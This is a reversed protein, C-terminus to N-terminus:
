GNWSLVGRALVNDIAEWSEFVLERNFVIQTLAVVHLLSSESRNLGHRARDLKDGLQCTM